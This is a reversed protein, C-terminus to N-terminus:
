AAEFHSALDRRLEDVDLGLVEAAAEELAWATALAAAAEAEVGTLGDACAENLADVSPVATGTRSAHPAISEAATILETITM